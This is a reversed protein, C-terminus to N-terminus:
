DAAGAAPNFYRVVLFGLGQRGFSSAPDTSMVVHIHQKASKEYFFMTTAPFSRTPKGERQRLRKESEVYATRVEPVFDVLEFRVSQLRDHRFALTLTKKEDYEVILHGKEKGPKTKQGMRALAKRADEQSMGISLRFADPEMWAVQSSSPFVSAFLLLILTLAGV